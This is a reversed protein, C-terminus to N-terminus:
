RAGGGHRGHDGGGSGGTPGGGGPAEGQGCAANRVHSMESELTAIRELEKSQAQAQVQTMTAVIAAQERRQAEQLAKNSDKRDNEQWGIVGLLIPIIALVLAKPLRGKWDRAREPKPAERPYAAGGEPTVGAGWM